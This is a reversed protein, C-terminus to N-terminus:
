KDFPLSPNKLQKDILLGQSVYSLKHLKKTLEQLSDESLDLAEVAKAVDSTSLDVLRLIYKLYGSLRHISFVIAEADEKLTADTVLKIGNKSPLIVVGDEQLEIIRSRLTPITVNFHNAIEYMKVIGVENELYALVDEKLLKKKRM